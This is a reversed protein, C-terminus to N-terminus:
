DVVCVVDDSLIDNLINTSLTVFQNSYKLEILLSKGSEFKFGDEIKFDEDEDKIRSSFSFLRM